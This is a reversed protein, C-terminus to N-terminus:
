KLDAIITVFLLILGITIGVDAVNFLPFPKLAIFDVVHGQVVRDLFNGLGGGIIVGLLVARGPRQEKAKFVYDAGLSLLLWLIIISGAIQLWLPIDIGFAIGANRQPSTLYFFDRIFVVQGFSSRVAFLKTFFDLLLTVALGVSFFLYHKKQLAEM